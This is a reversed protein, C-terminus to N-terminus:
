QLRFVLLEYVQDSLGFLNYLHDLSNCVLLDFGIVLALFVTFSLDDLEGLSGKLEKALAALWGV